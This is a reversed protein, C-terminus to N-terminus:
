EFSGKGLTMLLVTVSPDQRFQQLIKTSTLQLFSIANLKLSIALVNLVDTFQSFVLIKLPPKSTCTTTTTPASGSQIDTNILELIFSVISDVKTGYRGQIALHEQTEMLRRLRPSSLENTEVPVIEVTSSKEGRWQLVTLSHIPIERRCIPCKLHTRHARQHVEHEKWQQTCQQCFFHGCLFFCVNPRDDGFYEHCMPCKTRQNSSLDNTAISRYYDQQQEQFYHFQQRHKSVQQLFHDAQQLFDAREADISEAYFRYRNHLNRPRDQREGVFFELRSTCQLMEDLSLYLHKLQQAYNRAASNEQRLKKLLETWDTRLIKALQRTSDNSRM